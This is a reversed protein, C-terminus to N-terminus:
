LYTPSNVNADVYRPNFRNFLNTIGLRVAMRKGFVIPIEKELSFNTSFFTPMTFGNYPGAIHGFQDVPSFPFGSRAEIAYSASTKLLFPFYGWTVFRHRTNWDTLAIPIAELATDPFDISLSPRGKAQSYIYSGLIRLNTRIPRDISLEVADYSSKGSS